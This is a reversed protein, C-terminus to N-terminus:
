TWAWTFCKQVNLMNKTDHQKSLPVGSLDPRTVCKSIWFKSFREFVKRTVLTNITDFSIKHYVKIHGRDLNCSPKFHSHIQQVPFLTVLTKEIDVSIVCTKLSNGVSLLCILTECSLSSHGVCTPLLFIRTKSFKRKLHTVRGSRLTTVKFWV